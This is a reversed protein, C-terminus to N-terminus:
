EDGRSGPEGRKGTEQARTVGRAHGAEAVEFVGKEVGGKRVDQFCAKFEHKVLSGLQLTLQDFAAAARREQFRRIKLKLRLYHNGLALAILLPYGIFVTCFFVVLFHHNVVRKLKAPAPAGALRPEGEAGLAVQGGDHNVVDGRPGALNFAAGSATPADDRRAEVQGVKAPLQTLQQDSM